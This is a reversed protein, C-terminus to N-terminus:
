KEEELVKIFAEYAKTQKENLQKLKIDLKIKGKGQTVKGWKGSLIPPEKSLKMYSRVYEIAEDRSMKKSIIQSLIHAQHSSDIRSLEALVSIVTYELKKVREQVTSDLKLISLVKSLRSQSYGLQKALAEQTWSNEQMEEQISLASEIPNLNERALNEVLAKIRLQSGDEKTDIYIPVQEMGLLKCARLRREGSILTYTGDGNEYVCLPQRLGVSQISEKLEELSNDDGKDFDLRPQKPNPLIKDIQVSSQEEKLAKLVQANDKVIINSKQLLKSRLDSAM